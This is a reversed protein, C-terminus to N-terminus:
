IKKWWRYNDMFKLKNLIFSLTIVSPLFSIGTVLWSLM